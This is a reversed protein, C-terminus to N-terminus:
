RTVWSTDGRGTQHFGYFGLELRRGKHEPGGERGVEFVGDVGGVDVDVVNGELFGQGGLLFVGRDRLERSPDLVVLEEELGAVNEAEEAEGGDGGGAEGVFYGDACSGGNERGSRGGEGEPPLVYAVSEVTRDADPDPVLRHHQHRASM